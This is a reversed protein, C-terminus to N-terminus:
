FVTLRLTSVYTAGLGTTSPRLVLTHSLGNPTFVVGDDSVLHGKRNLRTNCKEFSVMNTEREPATKIAPISTQKGNMVPAPPTPQSSATINQTAVAAAKRKRPLTSIYNASVSSTEAAPTSEGDNVSSWGNMQGAKEAKSAARAAARKANREAKKKERDEAKFEQTIVGTIDDSPTNDIDSLSDAHSNSGNAQPQQQQQMEFDMEVDEAYNIRSNGPRRRSRTGYSPAVPQNSSMQSSTSARRTVTGSQASDDPVPTRGATSPNPSAIRSLASKSAARGNVGTHNDEVNLGRSAERSPANSSRSAGEGDGAMSKRNIAQFFPAQASEGGENESEGM